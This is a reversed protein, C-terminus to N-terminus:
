DIPATNQIEEDYIRFTEDDFLVWEVLELSGPNEKLFDRV